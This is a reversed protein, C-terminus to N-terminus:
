LKASPKTPASLSHYGQIFNQMEGANDRVWQEQEAISKGGCGEDMARLLRTPGMQRNSMVVAGAAECRMEEYKLLAKLLDGKEERVAAGLAKADLFAQNAGQSGFPLLPHAADGVLTVPGFTWQKVPDRDFLAFCTIEPAAEIISRWTVSPDSFVGEAFKWDNYIWDMQSKPVKAVWSEKANMADAPAAPNDFAEDHAAWGMNLMTKGRSRDGDHIGYMAVATKRDGVLLMTRGDLMQTDLNVVARFIRWGTFRAPEDKYLKARIVSKIGDCGLLVKASCSQQAKSRDINTFTATVNCGPPLMGDSTFGTCTHDCILNEAGLRERVAELIVRQLKGRHMSYQPAKYGANKGRPDTYILVGDPNYYRLEGTQVGCGIEPNGM